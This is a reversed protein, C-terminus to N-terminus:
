ASLVTGADHLELKEAGDPLNGPRFVVDFGVARPDEDIAPHILFVVEELAVPVGRRDAGAVDVDNQQGVGVDVVATQQGLEHGVTKVALDQGRGRRAVEHVDQEAVRGLDLRFVGLEFLLPVAFFAAFAPIRDLRQVREM